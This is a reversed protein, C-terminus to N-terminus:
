FTLLGCATRPNAAVHQATKDGDHVSGCACKALGELRAAHHEFDHGHLARHQHIALRLLPRIFDQRFDADREREAAEVARRRRWTPTPYPPPPIPPCPQEICNVAHQGTVSGM